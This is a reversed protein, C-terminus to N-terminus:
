LHLLGLADHAIEQAECVLEFYYEGEDENSPLRSSM